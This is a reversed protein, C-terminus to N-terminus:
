DRTAFRKICAVFNDAYPEYCNYDHNYLLVPYEKKGKQVDFCFCDGHGTAAFMLGNVSKSEEDEFEDAYDETGLKDPTLISATFGERSDVNDFDMAGVTSVFDLYSNPLKVKLRREIPKIDFPLVVRAHQKLFERFWKLDDDSLTGDAHQPIGAAEIATLQDKVWANDLSTPKASNGTVSAVLGKAKLKRLLTFLRISFYLDRVIWRNWGRESSGWTSSKLIEHPSENSWGDALPQQRQPLGFLFESWQTGPHASRPESCQPCRPIKPDVRATVIQNVPVALFWPTEQTTGNFHTPYFRCEGPAVLELVRRIRPRVFFNGKEGPALENPSYTRSKVLYYPQPVHDLDPFGCKPCKLPLTNIPSDFMDRCDMRDDSGTITIHNM